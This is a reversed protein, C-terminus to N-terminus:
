DIGAQAKKLTEHKNKLSKAGNISNKLNLFANAAQSTTRGTNNNLGYNM